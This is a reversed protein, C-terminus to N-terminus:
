RSPWSYHTNVPIWIVALTYLLNAVLIVIQYFAYIYSVLPTGFQLGYQWFFETIIKVTFLLIYAVLILQRSNKWFSENPVALESSLLHISLLVIAMSNLIRAYPNFSYLNGLILNDVSWILVFVAVVIYFADPRQSFLGWRKFQWVILLCFFIFYFNSSIANAGWVYISFEAVLCGLLNVWLSIIFPVFEKPM